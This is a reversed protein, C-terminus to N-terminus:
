RGRRGQARMATPTTSFWRQCNRTLVSQEAFGLRESIRAFDVDTQQAYYLLMDRRVEDKIRHFSSGEDRLRRHLTRQHLKLEAAIRANTCHETGLLQMIVGRAQAHLPPRHQTFRADIFAIAKEYALADPDVIPCALDQASFVVGDEHQGFRVECGFYRRYTKRPSVPLHRFHVRRVRAQGGTIELAALHGLLLLQEMAQSRNPMRDLLIDHGAFVAHGSRSRKLWVRAALSHAYTHQQVYALADGFTSSHKMAQGLPGLMQGGQRSALRLGFDACRLTTAAREILEVMQRYTAGAAGEPQGAPDIGAQQMLQRPDGGLEIVLEPFFRLIPAHVVDFGAHSGTERMASPIPSV